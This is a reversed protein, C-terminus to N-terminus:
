WGAGVVANRQAALAPPLEAFLHEFISAAPQPQTALYAQAAREVDAASSELLAEEDEKRWGHAATSYTRLRAIPSRFLM